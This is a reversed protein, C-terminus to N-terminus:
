NNPAGANVWAQLLNQDSTALGSGPPMTAQGMAKLSASANAKVNAHTDLLPPQGGQVHCLCAKKLLPVIDTAFSPFTATGADSSPTATGSLAATAPVMGPTADTVTLTGNKTGPATPRYTVQLRCVGLSPLAVVCDSSAMAFDPAGASITVALTGTPSGGTNAVNFTYSSVEGVKTAAFTAATPSIALM